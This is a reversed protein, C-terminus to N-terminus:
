AIPSHRLHLHHHHRDPRLHHFDKDGIMLVMDCVQELLCMGVVYLIQVV